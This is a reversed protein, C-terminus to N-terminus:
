LTRFGRLRNLVVAKNKVRLESFLWLRGPEGAAAVVVGLRQDM